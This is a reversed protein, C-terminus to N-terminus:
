VNNPFPHRGWYWRRVFLRPKVLQVFLNVLNEVIGSIPMRLFIGFHVSSFYFSIFRNTNNWSSKVMPQAYTRPWHTIDKVVNKRTWQYRCFNRIEDTTCNYPRIGASIRDVSGCVVRSIVSPSTRSWTRGEQLSVRVLRCFRRRYNVCLGVPEILELALIVFHLWNAKAAGFVINKKIEFRTELNFIKKWSQWGSRHGTKIVVAESCWNATHDGDWQYVPRKPVGSAIRFWLNWFPKTTKQRLSIDRETCTNKSLYCM